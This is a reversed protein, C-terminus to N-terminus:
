RSPVQVYLLLSLSQFPLLLEQLYKELQVLLSEGITEVSRPNLTFLVISVTLWISVTTYFLSQPLLYIFHICDAKWIWSWLGFHCNNINDLPYEVLGSGKLTVYVLCRNSLVFYPMYLTSYDVSTVAIILRDNMIIFYMYTSFTLTGTNLCHAVAVHVLVLCTFIELITCWFFWVAFFIITM